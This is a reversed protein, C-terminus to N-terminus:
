EFEPSTYSALSIKGEPKSKNQKLLFSPFWLHAPGIKYYDWRSKFTFLKYAYIVDSGFWLRYFKRKKKKWIFIITITALFGESPTIQTWFQSNNPSCSCFSSQSSHLFFLFRTKMQINKSTNTGVHNQVAEPEMLWVLLQLWAGFFRWRLSVLGFKIIPWAWSQRSTVEVPCIRLHCIQVFNQIVDGKYMSTSIRLSLTQLFYKKDYSDIIHHANDPLAATFILSRYFHYGLLSCLLPPPPCYKLSTNLLYVGQKRCIQWHVISKFWPACM